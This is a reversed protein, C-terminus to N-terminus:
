AHLSRTKLYRQWPANGSVELSVIRCPNKFEEGCLWGYEWDRERM